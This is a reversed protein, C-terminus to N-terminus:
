FTYTLTCLFQHRNDKVKAPQGYAAIEDTVYVSTGNNDDMYYNYDGVASMYPYFDGKRSSYQYAM